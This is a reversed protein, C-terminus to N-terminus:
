NIKNWEGAKTTMLQYLRSEKPIQGDFPVINGGVRMLGNGPVSGAKVYELQSQSLRYMDAVIVMDDATLEYMTVWSSNGLMTSFEVDSKLYEINQTLGCPAAGRKRYRRWASNFYEATYHEVLMTQFEDFFLDTYLGDDFNKTVTNVLFDTVILNGITKLDGSLQSTDFCVIRNNLSVNTKQSFEKLSGTTFLELKLALQKARQEPQRLLEERLDNLTPIDDINKYINIVCRDIISKDDAGIQETKDILEFLSVIFSSKEYYSNSTKEAYGKVMDCPNINTTSSASLTIIQGGLAEILPRYEKEPDLIIIQHNTKLFLELINVKVGFSKGSGPVGIIFRNPNKLNDSNVILLNGTVANVGCYLGNEDFVEQAKFPMFIASSETTLTREAFLRNVGYPLATQLGQLQQFFLPTIQCMEQRAYSKIEDTDEDLHKKSDAFHVMSIVGVFMRQDRETLDSLYEDVEEIQQIMDYTPTTGIQGRQAAKRLYNVKNSEVKMKINQVAGVAEDTPVAVLDLSFCCPRNISCLKSVVNDNIFTAFDRLMLARGYTNGFKFYDASRKDSDYVDPCIYDRIDAGQRVMDKIDLNYNSEEGQRYFDHFIKLRDVANMQKIDAQLVFFSQQIQQFQRKFFLRAAEVNKKFTSVTLFIETSIGNAALAKNMVIKNFENRYEDFGDNQNKLTVVDTLHKVDIKRKIVTLKYRADPDFSNLVSEWRLFIDKKQYGSSIAYNIDYIKYTVSFQNLGASKDTIQFIGDDWIQRIPITEQVSRPIKYSSKEQRKLAKLSKLM